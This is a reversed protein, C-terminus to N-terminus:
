EFAGRAARLALEARKAALSLELRRRAIAASARHADLLEVVSRHGERYGSEAARVLVDVREATAADFRALEDSALTLASTARSTALQAARRAARVRADARRQRAQTEARLARGRSFLPLSVALGVVYGYRIQASAGVRVGGTISVTPVWARRASDRATRVRAAAAQALAISRSTAGERPAEATNEAVSAPEGTLGLDGRLVLDGRELGLLVALEARLAAARSEAERLASRELEAELALRTQEYGSATGERHRRQLVRAAEDFEDVVRRAIEVRREAALAAYFVSLARTVARGRTRAAESRALAVDARLLARRAGRRGSVDIPISASLTDESEGSAGPIHERDWALEPDPYLGAGEARAAAVAVEERALIVSPDTARALRIVEAADVM